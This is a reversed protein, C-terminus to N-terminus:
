WRCSQDHDTEVWVSNLISDLPCHHKLFLFLHMLYLKDIHSQTHIIYVSCTVPEEFSACELSMELVNHHKIIDFFYWGRMTLCCNCFVSTPLCLIESSKKGGPLMSQTLFLSHLLQELLHVNIQSSVNCLLRCSRALCPSYVFIKHQKTSEM